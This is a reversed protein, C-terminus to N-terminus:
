IVTSRKFPHNSSAGPILHKRPYKWMSGPYINNWEFERINCADAAHNTGPNVHCSGYCNGDSEYVSSGDNSPKWRSCRGTANAPLRNTCSPGSFQAPSWFMRFTLIFTAVYLCDVKRPGERHKTVSLPCPSLVPGHADWCILQCKEWLVVPQLTNTVRWVIKPIHRLSLHSTAQRLNLLQFKKLQLDSIQNFSPLSMLVLTM